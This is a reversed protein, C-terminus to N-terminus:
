ASRHGCRQLYPRRPSRYLSVNHNTRTFRSYTLRNNITLQYLPHIFIVLRCLLIVEHLSSRERYIYDINVPGTLRGSWFWPSASINGKMQIRLPSELPNSASGRQDEGSRPRRPTEIRFCALDGKLERASGSERTEPPANSAAHSSPSQECFRLTV